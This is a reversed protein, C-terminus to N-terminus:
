IYEPLPGPNLRTVAQFMFGMLAVKGRERERMECDCSVFQVAACFSLVAGKGVPEESL